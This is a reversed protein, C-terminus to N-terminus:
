HGAIKYGDYCGEKGAAEAAAGGHAQKAWYKGVAIAVKDRDDKVHYRQALDAIKVSGCDTYSREYAVDSAPNFTGTHTTTTGPSNGGGCGALVAAAALSAAILTLARV